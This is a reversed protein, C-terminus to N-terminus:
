QKERLRRKLEIVDDPHMYVMDGWRAAKGNARWRVVSPQPRGLRARRKARSPSRCGSWDTWPDGVADSAIVRLGSIYGSLPLDLAMSM